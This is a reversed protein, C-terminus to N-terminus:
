QLRVSLNSRDGKGKATNTASFGHSITAITNKININTNNINTNTTTPPEIPSALSRVDILTRAATFKPNNEKM